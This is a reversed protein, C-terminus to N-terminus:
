WEGVRLKRRQFPRMYRIKFLGVKHGESRLEDVVQRATGTVSGLTILAVEADDCLYKETMGHYYRGFMDGFELDVEKIIDISKAMARHQIYKFEQNDEPSTSFM